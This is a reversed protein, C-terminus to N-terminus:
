AESIFPVRSQSIKLKYNTKHCSDVVIPDTERKNKVAPACYKMYLM